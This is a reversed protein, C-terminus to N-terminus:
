QWGHEDDGKLDAAGSPWMTLVTKVVGDGVVLAVNPDLPDEILVCGHALRVHGWRGRGPGYRNGTAVIRKIEARAGSKDLSPDVRTAYRAAAHFTVGPGRSGSITNRM